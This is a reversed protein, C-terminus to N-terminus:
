LYLETSPVLIYIHMLDRVCKGGFNWVYALIPTFFTSEASEEVDPLNLSGYLLGLSQDTDLPGPYSVTKLHEFFLIFIYM